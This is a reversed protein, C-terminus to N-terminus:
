GGSSRSAGAHAARIAVTRRLEDAAQLVKRRLDIPLEPHEALFADVRALAEPRNQGSLFADLWRGLYFIRRNKQIWQLSDLAPVLYRMTLARQSITNFNGLSATAWEENLTSDAFYRRFYDAKV